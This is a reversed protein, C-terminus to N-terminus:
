RTGYMDDWERSDNRPSPRMGHVHFYEARHKRVIDALERHIEKGREKTIEISEPPFNQMARRLAPSPNFNLKPRPVYPSYPHTAVFLALRKKREEEVEARRELSVGHEGGDTLNYGDPYMTRREAIFRREIEPLDDDPYEGLTEVTFASLGLERMDRYLPRESSRMDALHGKWRKGTTLVTLGIYQKGNRTNTICYIFGM